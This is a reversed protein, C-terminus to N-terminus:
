KRHDTIWQYTVASIRATGRLPTGDQPAVLAMGTVFRAGKNDVVFFPSGWPGAACPAATASGRSMTAADIPCKTSAMAADQGSEGYTLASPTYTKDIDTQFGFWGLKTGAPQALTVVGIGYPTAGYTTETSSADVFAQMVNGEAWEIGGFPANGNQAGPYFKVDDAWVPNGEAGWLCSAATLVTSPGILTGTCPYSHSGYTVEIVGVARYPYVGSDAVPALPAPTGTMQPPAGALAPGNTSSISALLAASAPTSSETGDAM